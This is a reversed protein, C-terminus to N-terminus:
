AGSGAAATDDEIAEEDAIASGQALTAAAGEALEVLRLDAKTHLVAAEILLAVLPEDRHRRRLEALAKLEGLYAEPSRRPPLLRSVSRM